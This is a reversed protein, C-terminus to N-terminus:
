RGHSEHGRNKKCAGDEGSARLLRKVFLLVRVVLIYVDRIAAAVAYAYDVDEREAHDLGDSDAFFRSRQGGIRALILNVNRVSLGVVYTHDVRFLIGDDSSDTHM